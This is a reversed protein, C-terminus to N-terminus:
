HRSPTAPNLKVPQSMVGNGASDWAAFRIWKKGGVDLPIEFHKSGMPALDTTAIVQRNSSTGDGSVVEVFNLPFTWELDVVITRRAGSGTVSFKPMLVEGSTVFSDGRMLAQIVLQSEDPGPTRDLKV